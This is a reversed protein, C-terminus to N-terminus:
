AAGDLDARIEVTHYELTPFTQPEATPWIVEWEAEYQGPTNTDGVAWAYRVVGNLADRIVAAANVKVAGGGAPRMIFSVGSATSLDVPQGGTMLQAQIYPRRDNAKMTFDAV